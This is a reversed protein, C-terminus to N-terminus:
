QAVQRRLCHLGPHVSILHKRRQTKQMCCSRNHMITITLRLRQALGDKQLWLDQNIGDTAENPFRLWFIDVLVEPYQITTHELLLDKLTIM